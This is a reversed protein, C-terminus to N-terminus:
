VQAEELVSKVLRQDKTFSKTKASLLNRVERNSLRIKKKVGSESQEIIM